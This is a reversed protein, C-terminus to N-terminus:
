RVRRIWHHGEIEVKEGDINGDYYDGHCKSGDSNVDQFKSTIAGRGSYFVVEKGSSSWYIENYQDYNAITGDTQLILVAMKEQGKRGFEWVGAFENSEPDPIVQSHDFPTKVPHYLKNSRKFKTKGWSVNFVLDGFQGVKMGLLSAVSGLRAESNSKQTDKWVEIYKEAISVIADRSFLVFVSPRLGIPECPLKINEFWGWGGENKNTVLFPSCVDFKRYPECYIDLNCECYCDYECFMYFKHKLRDKEELIYNLLVTDTDWRRSGRPIKGNLTVPYSGPLGEVDEDRIGLIDNGCRLFSNFNSEVVQRNNRDIHHLFLVQTDAM